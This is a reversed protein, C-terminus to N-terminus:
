ELGQKKMPIFRIGNVTQEETTEKFGLRRYVPVAFPSSNVTMTQEGMAASAAQYLSRAIGQRHYAPDVFLLSIHAPPRIGIVGVLKNKQQYGWLKLEQTEIRRKTGALDIYAKFEEIGEPSYEPAEFQSFVQWILEVAEQIEYDATVVKIM